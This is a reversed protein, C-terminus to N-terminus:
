KEEKIAARAVGRVHDLERQSVRPAYNAIELLAARLREIESRWLNEGATFLAIREREARKAARRRKLERWINMTYPM